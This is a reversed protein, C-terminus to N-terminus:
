TDSSSVETLFFTYLLTFLVHRLTPLHSTISIQVTSLFFSISLLLVNFFINILLRERSRFVIVVAIKEKSKGVKKESEKNKALSSASWLAWIGM